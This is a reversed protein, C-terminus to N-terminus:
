YSENRTYRIRTCWVKRIENCFYKKIQLDIIERTYNKIHANEFDRPLLLIRGHLPM